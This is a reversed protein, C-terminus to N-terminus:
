TWAPARRLVVALGALGAAAGALPLEVLIGEYLAKGLMRGLFELLQAAEPILALAAPDPYLQQGATARRPPPPRPTTCHASTSRPPPARAAPPRGMWSGAAVPPSAALVPRALQLSCGALRAGCAHLLGCGPLGCCPLGCRFLGYQPSFGERLLEEVFDKFLGGGDVGATTTTAAAATSPSRTLTPPTPTHHHHHHTPTLLSTCPALLRTHAPPCPRLPLAPASSLAWCRPGLGARRRAM